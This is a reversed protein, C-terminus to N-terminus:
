SPPPMPSRGPPPGTPRMTATACSTRAASCCGCHRLTRPSSGPSNPWGDPWCGCPARISGTPRRSSVCPKGGPHGAGARGAARRRRAARRDRALGCTRAPRGPAGPRARCVGTRRRSSSRGHRPREPLPRRIRLRGGGPYGASWPASRRPGLRLLPDRSRRRVRRRDHPRGFPGALHLGPGRDCATPRNALRRLHKEVTRYGRNLRNAGDDGALEGPSVVEDFEADLLGQLWETGGVQGGLARVDGRAMTMADITRPGYVVPRGLRTQVHAAATAVCNIDHGPELGACCTTFAPGWLEADTYPLPHGDADTPVM